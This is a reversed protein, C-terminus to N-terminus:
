RYPSRHPEPEPLTGASGPSLHLSNVVEGTTQSVGLHKAEQQHKAEPQPLFRSGLESMATRDSCEQCENIHSRACSGCCGGSEGCLFYNLPENNYLLRACKECTLYSQVSIAKVALDCCSQCETMVHLRACSECRDLAGCNLLIIPETSDIDRQCVLCTEVTM